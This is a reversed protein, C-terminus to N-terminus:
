PTASATKRTPLLNELSEALNMLQADSGPAGLLAIGFHTPLRGFVGAPIAVHPAGSVASLACNGLPYRMDERRPAEVLNTPYLLASVGHHKLTRSIGKVLKARAAAFAKPDGSGKAIDGALMRLFNRSYPVMRGPEAAEALDGYSRLGSGTVGNLYTRMGSDADAAPYTAFGSDALTSLLASDIIVIRAGAAELKNLVAAFAPRLAEADPWMGNLGSLVAIRQGRVSNVSPSASPRGGALVDNVLRVDAVSKAMTGAVDMAPFVPLVGQMPIRGHTPRATALGNYGAPNTLSDCTDTGIAAVALDAAVAVASGSSSGGTRRDLAFVNRSQGGLTSEGFGGLALDDLNAKGILIADAAELRSVLEASRKPMSRALIPTGATTPHGAMDINDKIAIVAGFLPGMQRGSRAAEDLAGARALSGARDVSLYAALAPGQRDYAQIRDLYQQVVASLTTQGGIIATRTGAIDAGVVSFPAPAPKGPKWNVILKREAEDIGDLLPTEALVRAHAKLRSTAAPLGLTRAETLPMRGVFTLLKATEGPALVLHHVAAVYGPDRKGTWATLQPASPDAFEPKTRGGDGAFVAFSPAFWAIEQAATGDKADPRGVTAAVLWSDGQELAADGSSTALIRPRASIREARHVGFGGAIAIEIELSKGTFNTFSDLYRLLDADGVSQIHRSSAVGHWIAPTATAWADPGAQMFSAWTLREERWDKDGGDRVRLIIYGYGNFPRDAGGARLAGNAPAGSLGVDPDWGPVPQGLVASAFGLAPLIALLHRRMNRM